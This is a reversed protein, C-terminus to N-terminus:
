LNFYKQIISGPYFDKRVGCNFPDVQEGKAM